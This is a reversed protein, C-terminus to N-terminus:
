AVPPLELQSRHQRKIDFSTSLFATLTRALALSLSRSSSSRTSLSPCPSLFIADDPSGFCRLRAGRLAEPRKRGFHALPQVLFPRSYRSVDVLLSSIAMLFAPSALPFARKPKAIRRREDRLAAEAAALKARRCSRTGRATGALVRSDRDLTVREFTGSSRAARERETLLASRFPPRFFPSASEREREPLSLSTDRSSHSFSGLIKREWIRRRGNSRGGRAERAANEIARKPRAERGSQM